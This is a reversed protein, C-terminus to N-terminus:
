PLQMASHEADPLRPTQNLEHFLLICGLAVSLVTLGLCLWRDRRRLRKLTKMKETQAEYQQTQANQTQRLVNLDDLTKEQQTRTTELDHSRQELDNALNKVRLRYADSERIALNLAHHHSRYHEILFLIVSIVELTPWDVEALNPRNLM